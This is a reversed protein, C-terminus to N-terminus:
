CALDEPPCPRVDGRGQPTPKESLRFREGNLPKSRQTSLPFHSPFLLGGIGLVRTRALRGSRHVCNHKFMCPPVSKLIFLLFVPFSDALIYPRPRSREPHPFDWGKRPRMGGMGSPGEATGPCSELWYGARESRVTARHRQVRRRPCWCEADCRGPSRPGHNMARGDRASGQVAGPLSGTTPTMAWADTTSGREPMGERSACKGTPPSRDRERLASERARASAHGSCCGGSAM